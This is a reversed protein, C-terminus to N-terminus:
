LIFSSGFAAAGMLILYNPYEARVSNINQYSTVNRYPNFSFVKGCNKFM